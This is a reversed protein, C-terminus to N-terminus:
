IWFGTFDSLTFLGIKRFSRKSFRWHLMIVIYNKILKSNTVRVERCTIPFLQRLMKFFVQAEDLFMECYFFPHTGIWTIRLFKFSHDLNDTQIIICLSPIRLAADMVLHLNVSFSNIFWSGSLEHVEASGPAAETWGEFSRVRIKSRLSLETDSRRLIIWLLWLFVVSSHSCNFIM